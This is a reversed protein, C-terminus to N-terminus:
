VTIKFMHARSVATAYSSGPPTLKGEVIVTFTGNEEGEYWSSRTMQFTYGNEGVARINVVDNLTITGDSEIKYRADCTIKVNAEIAGFGEEEATVSASAPVILACMM